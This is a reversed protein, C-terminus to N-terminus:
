AQIHKVHEEAGRHAHLFLLRIFEAQICGSTSAVAPAFISRTNNAYDQTYKLTRTGARDKLPQDVRKFDNFTLKGHDQPNARSARHREHVFSLDLVLNTSGRGIAAILTTSWRLTLGVSALVTSSRSKRGSLIAWFPSTPPSFPLSPVSLRASSPRGYAPPGHTLRDPPALSDSSASRRGSFSGGTTRKNSLFSDM